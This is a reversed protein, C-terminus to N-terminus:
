DKNYHFITESRKSIMLSFVRMTKIRTTISYLRLCM